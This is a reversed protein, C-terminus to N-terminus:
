NSETTVVINATASSSSNNQVNFYYSTGSTLANATTCAEGACSTTSINTEYLDSYIAFSLSTGSPSLSKASIKHAVDGVATFYYYYATGAALTQACESTTNVEILIKNSGNIGTGSCASVTAVTTTSDDDDESCSILGFSIFIVLIYLFSKLKMNSLKM